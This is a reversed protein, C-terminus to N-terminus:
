GAAGVRRAPRGAHRWRLLVFLPGDRRQQRGVDQREEVLQRRRHGLLGGVHVRRVERVDGLRHRAVPHAHEEVRERAVAGGVHDRV